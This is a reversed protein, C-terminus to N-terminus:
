NLLLIFLLDIPSTCTLFVRVGISCWELSCRECRQVMSRVENDPAARTKFTQHEGLVLEIVAARVLFINGANRHERSLAGGEAPALPKQQLRRLCDLMTEGGGPSLAVLQLESHSQWLLDRGDCVRGRLSGLEDSTASAVEQAKAAVDISAPLDIGSVLKTVRELDGSVEIAAESVALSAFTNGLARSIAAPATPPRGRGSMRARPEEYSKLAKDFDGDPAVFAAALRRALRCEPSIQSQVGSLVTASVVDPLAEATWWVDKEAAAELESPSTLVLFFDRDRKAYGGSLLLVSPPFSALSSRGLLNPLLMSAAVCKRDRQALLRRGDLAPYTVITIAQGGLRALRAFYLLGVPTEFV